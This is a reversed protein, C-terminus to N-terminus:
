EGGAASSSDTGRLLDLPRSPDISGARGGGAGGLLSARLQAAMEAGSPAAGGTVGTVANRLQATLRAIEAAAGARLAEADRLSGAVTAAVDDVVKLAGDTSGAGVALPGGAGLDDLKASLSGPAPAGAAEPASATITFARFTGLNQANAEGEGIAGIGLRLYVALDPDIRVKLETGNSRAQVGNVWAEVDQGRDEVANAGEAFTVRSTADARNADDAQLRYMGIGNAKGIDGDEFVEVSVFESSGYGSSSLTLGTTGSISASVGTSQTFSNIATVMDQITAGSSFSLEKAGAGGRINLIFSTAGGDTAGAGGLNITSAGFSLYLGALQASARVDVEVDRVTGPELNANFRYDEVQGSVNSVTYTAGTPPGGQAGAAEEATAIARLVEDVRSQARKVEAPDAADRSREVLERLEGIARGLDELRDQRALLGFGAREAESIRAAISRVDSGPGDVAASGEVARTQPGGVSGPRAAGGAAAPPLPTFNLPLGQPLNPRITNM